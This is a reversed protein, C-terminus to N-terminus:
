GCTVLALSHLKLRRATLGQHGRHQRDPLGEEHASVDTASTCRHLGETGKYRTRQAGARRHVGDTGHHVLALSQKLFLQRVMQSGGEKHMKGLGVFASAALALSGFLLNATLATRAQPDDFAAVNKYTVTLILDM